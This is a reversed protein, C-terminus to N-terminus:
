TINSDRSQATRLETDRQLIDESETFHTYFQRLWFWVRGEVAVVRKLSSCIIACHETTNLLPRQIVQCVSVSRIM